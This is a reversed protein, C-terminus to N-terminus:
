LPLKVSLHYDKGGEIDALMNAALPKGECLVTIDKVEAGRMIDAHIVAGRFYRTVAAQKWHSPFNPHVTL